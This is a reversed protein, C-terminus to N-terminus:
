SRVFELRTSGLLGESALEFVCIGDATAYRETELSGRWVGGSPVDVVRRTIGDLRLSVPNGSKGLLTAELRGDACDFVTFTAPAPMDGNALVGASITSARIPLEPRWLVLGAALMGQQRIQAVPEGVLTVNTPAIM